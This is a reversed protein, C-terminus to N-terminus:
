IGKKILGIVINYLKFLANKGIFGFLVFIARCFDFIYLTFNLVILKQLKIKKIYENEKVCGIIM